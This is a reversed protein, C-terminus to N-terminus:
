DRVPVEGTDLSAKPSGLWALLGVAGLLYLGSVVAYYGERPVESQLLVGAQPLLVLVAMALAARTPTALLPAAGALVTLYYSSLNFTVLPVMSSLSLRAAVSRMRALVLVFLLAGTLGLLGRVLTPCGIVALQGLGIRNFFVTAVHKSSNHLFDYWLGTGAVRLSAVIMVLLTSLGALLLRQAHAPAPRRRVRDLLLGLLPGLFLAGPFMQLATAGGLLIGAVIPLGRFLSGLGVLTMLLWLSRGVSGGTWLWIWPFGLGIVLAAIAGARLGFGWLLGLLLIAYLVEDVHVLAELWSASAPRSGVLPGFIWTWVPTANYGHDALLGEWAPRSLQSQFFMADQKFAAWRAASFRPACASGEALLAGQSVMRNTRLDRVPRNPSSPWRDEEVDAEILCRYLGTYGLEPAYKAGLYYHAADHYHV